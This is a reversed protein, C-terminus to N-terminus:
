LSCASCYFYCTSPKCGTVCPRTICNSNLKRNGSITLTLKGSCIWSARFMSPPPPQTLAREVEIREIVTLDRDRDNDYFFSWEIAWCLLFIFGCFDFQLSRPTLFGKNISRIRDINIYHPPYFCKKRRFCCSHTTKLVFM